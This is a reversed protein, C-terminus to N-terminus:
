LAEMKTKSWKLCQIAPTKKPKQTWSDFITWEIAELPDFIVKRINLSNSIVLFYM